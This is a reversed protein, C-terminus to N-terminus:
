IKSDIEKKTINKSETRKRRGQETKLPLGQNKSLQM